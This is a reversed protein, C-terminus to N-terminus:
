TNDEKSPVCTCNCNCIVKDCDIVIGGIARNAEFLQCVSSPISGSMDADFIELSTLRLMQGFGSPVTGTIRTSSIGINRLMSLKSLQMPFTGSVSSNDVFLVALKSVRGIETPITGNLLQNSALDLITLRQCSGVESPISGSFNNFALSLEESSKLGGISTPISGTLFNESLDLYRCTKLNGISSPLPGTLLNSAIYVEDLADSLRGLETPLVGTFRNGSLDLRRLNTFLGLTTSLTGTFNNHQLQLESSKKWSIWIDEHITGQLANGALVVFNRLSTLFSIERPLEGTLNNSALVLSQLGRSYCEKKLLYFTYAYTPDEASTTWWDCIHETASLWNSDNNWNPGDTAYYLTALAFKEKVLILDNQSPLSVLWKWAKGQPSLAQLSNGLWANDKYWNATRSKAPLENLLTSVTYIPLSQALKELSNPLDLSRLAPQDDDPRSWVGAIAAIVCGVLIVGAILM